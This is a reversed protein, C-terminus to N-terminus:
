APLCSIHHWRGDNTKAKTEDIVPYELTRSVREERIRVTPIPQGCAPCSLIM